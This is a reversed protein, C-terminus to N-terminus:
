VEEKLMYNLRDINQDWDLFTKAYEIANYSAAKLEEENTCAELLIEYLKEVDGISFIKGCKENNTIDNSADINSTVMYCGNIQAEAAVNPSGEFISTLAFIKAKRYENMLVAKDAIFGTFIVKDVLQPYKTFYEEIYPKFSDEVKGILKLKWGNIKKSLLAFTEMLVHNAKQDTGIRGVTIITNEKENYDVNVDLNAFNYFGNPIYEINWNPWKINLHRQLKKCSTAIIDCSNLLGSCWDSNFLIRDMWHSSADLNLVIKGDPRLKKYLVSSEVFPFYLGYLILVDIDKYNNIIYNCLNNADCSDIFKMKLGKVYTELFPYEGNKEGVMYCDYGHRKHLLYPIIGCDKTLQDNCWNGPIGSLAYVGNINKTSQIHRDDDKPIAYIVTEWNVSKEYHRIYFKYNKNIAYILKPIEWIDSVIHYVCIALKPNDNKIHNKAGIIGQIESGEIDMKIFSVKEEIDKDLTTINIEDYEEVSNNVVSSASGSKSFKLKEIKDGVGFQRVEINSYNKTNEICAKVNDPSPEYIYIKKYKSFNNVFSEATDGTFGGCDVFVEDENCNVIATDFYQPIDDYALSLYNTSPLIRYRLLNLLVDRSREDCLKNYLWVYQNINKKLDIMVYYYAGSKKGKSYGGMPLNLLEELPMNIEQAICNVIEDISNSSILEVLQEFTNLSDLLMEFYM